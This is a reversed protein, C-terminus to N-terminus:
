VAKSAEDSLTHLKGQSLDLSYDHNSIIAQLFAAGALALLILFASNLGYRTKRATLIERAEQRNQFLYAALGAPGLVFPIWFALGARAQVTYAVAAAIILVLGALGSWKLLLDRNMKM